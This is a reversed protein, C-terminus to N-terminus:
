SSTEYRRRAPGTPGEDSTRGYLGHVPRVIVVGSTRTVHRGGKGDNPLNGSLADAPATLATPQGVSPTGGGRECFDVLVQFDPKEAM